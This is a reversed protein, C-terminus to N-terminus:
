LVPVPRGDVVDWVNGAPVPLETAQVTDHRTLLGSPPVLLERELLTRASLWWSRFSWGAATHARREPGLSDAFRLRLVEIRVRQPESLERLWPLDEFRTVTMEGRDQASTWANGYAAYAAALSEVDLCLPPDERAVRHLAALQGTLVAMAPAAGLSVAVYLRRVPTAAALQVDLVNHRRFWPQEMRDVALGGALLPVLAPAASAVAERLLGLEEPTLAITTRALLM